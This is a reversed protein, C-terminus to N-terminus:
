LACSWFLCCFPHCLYRLPHRQRIHVFINLAVSKSLLNSLIMWLCKLFLSISWLTIWHGLRASTSFTRPLTFDLLSSLLLSLDMCFAGCFIKGQLGIITLWMTEFSNSKIQTSYNQQFSVSKQNRCSTLLFFINQNFWM